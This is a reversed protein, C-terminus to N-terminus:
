DELAKVMVIQSVAEICLLPHIYKNEMTVTYVEKTMQITCIINPPHVVYVVGRDKGGERKQLRGSM